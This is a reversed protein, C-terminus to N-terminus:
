ELVYDYLIKLCQNQYLDNMRTELKEKRDAFTNKGIKDFKQTKTLQNTQM